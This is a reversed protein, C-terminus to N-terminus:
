QPMAGSLRREFEAIDRLSCRHLRLKREPGPFGDDDSESEADETRTFHDTASSLLISQYFVAEDGRRWCTWTEFMSAPPGAMVLFRAFGHELVRAASRRWSARYEEASWYALDATFITRFGGIVIEGTAGSDRGRRDLRIDFM